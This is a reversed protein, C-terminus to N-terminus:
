QPYMPQEPTKSELNKPNIGPNLKPDEDFSGHPTQPVGALGVLMPTHLSVPKGWGNKGGAERALVHAKRQDIGACAVDLKMQFIDAAQMCPYFLSATEVDQTKMDRGMIPLARM